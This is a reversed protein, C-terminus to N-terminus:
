VVAQFDAQRDVWQDAHKRGLYPYSAATESVRVHKRIRVSRKNEDIVERQARVFSVLGRGDRRTKRWGNETKRGRCSRWGLLENETNWLRSVGLTFTSKRSSNYGGRRSKYGGRARFTDSPNSQAAIRGATPCLDSTVGLMKSKARIRAWWESYGGMDEIGNM